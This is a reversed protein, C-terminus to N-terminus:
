IDKVDHVEIGLSKKESRPILSFKIYQRLKKPEPNVVGSTIEFNIEAYYLTPIKEDRILNSNEDDFSTTAVNKSLEIRALYPISYGKEKDEDSIETWRKLTGEALSDEMHNLSIQASEWITEANLSNYAILFGKLDISIQEVSRLRPEDFVVYGVAKNTVPDVALVEKDETALMYNNVVLVIVMFIGFVWGFIGNMAIKQHLTLSLNDDGGNNLSTTDTM